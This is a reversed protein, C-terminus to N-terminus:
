KKNRLEKIKEETLQINKVYKERNNDIDSYQHIIEGFSNKDFESNKKFFVGISGEMEEPFAVFVGCNKEYKDVLDIWFEYANGLREPVINSEDIAKVGINGESDLDLASQPLRHAEQPESYLKVSMQQGDLIMLDTNEFSIEIPFASSAENIIKSVYTV